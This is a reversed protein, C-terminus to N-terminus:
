GNSQEEKHKRRFMSKIGSWGSRLVFLAGLLGSVAAQIFLSGTGSDIYAHSEASLSFVFVLALALGLARSNNMRQSAGVDLPAYQETISIGFEVLGEEPLSNRARNAHLFHGVYM